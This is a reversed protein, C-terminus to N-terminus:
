ILNKIQSQVPKSTIIFCDIVNKMFFEFIRKTLTNSFIDEFIIHMSFVATRIEDSRNGSFLKM